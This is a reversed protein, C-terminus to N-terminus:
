RRLALKEPKILILAVVAIAYCIASVLCAPNYSGTIDAISGWILPGCGGIFTLGFTLIGVLTGLSTRGYLDGLYPVLLAIPVGYSMGFLVAVIFLSSRSGVTLWAGVLVLMPACSGIILILKKGYRDGLWGGLIKLPISPLTVATMFIGATAMPEGLDVGWMVIQTLMGQTPIGTVAFAVFLLWFPSTRLAEKASWVAEGTVSSTVNAEPPAEAM